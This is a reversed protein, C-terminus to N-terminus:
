HCEPPDGMRKVCVIFQQGQPILHEREFKRWHEAGRPGNIKPATGIPRFKAFTEPSAPNSRTM